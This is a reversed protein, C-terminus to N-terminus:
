ADGERGGEGRGDTATADGNAMRMCANARPARIYSADVTLCRTRMINRACMRAFTIRRTVTTTTPLMCSSM